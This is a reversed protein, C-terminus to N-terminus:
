NVIYNDKVRIFCHIFTFPSLDIKERTYKGESLFISRDGKIRTRM